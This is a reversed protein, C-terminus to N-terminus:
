SKKSTKAFFSAFVQEVETSDCKPCHPREKEHEEIHEIRTFVEDCKQCHYEYTPM